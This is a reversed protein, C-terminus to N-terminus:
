AHKGTYIDSQRHTVCEGPLGSGGASCCRGLRVTRRHDSALAPVLCRAPQAAPGACPLVACWHPSCPLNSVLIPCHDSYCAWTWCGIPIEPSTPDYHWKEHM